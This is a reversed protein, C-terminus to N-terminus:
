LQIFGIHNKVYFLDNYTNYGIFQNTNLDVKEVFSLEQSFAFFPFLLIIVIKILFSQCSLSFSILNIAEYKM